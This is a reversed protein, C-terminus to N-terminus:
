FKRNYGITTINNYRLSILEYSNADEGLSSSVYLWLHHGSLDGLSITKFRNSGVVISSFGDGWKKGECGVSSSLSFSMAWHDLIVSM